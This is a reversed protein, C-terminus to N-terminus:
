RRKFEKLKKIAKPNLKTDTEAVFFPFYRWEGCAGFCYAGNRIESITVLGTHWGNTIENLDEFCYGKDGVHVDKRDKWSKVNCEDCVRAKELSERYEASNEYEEEYMQLNRFIDLFTGKLAIRYAFLNTKDTDNMM